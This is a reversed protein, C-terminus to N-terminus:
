CQLNFFDEVRRYKYGHVFDTEGPAHTFEANVLKVWDRDNKHGWSTVKDLMEEKSRVWSFHHMIPGNQHTIPAITNINPSHLYAWREIETFNVDMSVKSKRVLIGANETTLAQNKAERFYWYCEFTAADFIFPRFIDVLKKLQNGEIIEDGDLFLLWESTALGAGCWRAFNHHFRGSMNARWALPITIIDDIGALSEIVEENDPKGNLLHDFFVVIIESSFKKAEQIQSRIFKKDLSCYNIITSIM